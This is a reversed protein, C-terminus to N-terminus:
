ELLGRAWTLQQCFTRLLCRADCPIEGLLFCFARNSHRPGDHLLPNKRGGWVSAREFGGQVALEHGSAMMRSCPQVIAKHWALQAATISPRYM